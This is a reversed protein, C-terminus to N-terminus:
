ENITKIKLIELENDDNLEEYHSKYNDVAADVNRKEIGEHIASGIFLANSPSLDDKAELHDVYRLKYLFPCSNYCEVKSYSVKM